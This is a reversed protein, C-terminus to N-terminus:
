EYIRLYNDLVELTQARPAGDMLARPPLANCWAQRGDYEAATESARAYLNLGNRCQFADLDAYPLLCGKLADRPREYRVGHMCLAIGETIKQKERKLAPPLEAEWAERRKYERWAPDNDDDQVKAQAAPTDHAPTQEANNAILFAAIGLLVLGCFMRNM